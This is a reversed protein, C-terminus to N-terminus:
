LVISCRCADGLVNCRPAPRLICHFCWDFGAGSGRKVVHTEAFETGLVVGRRGNSVRKGQARQTHRLHALSGSPTSEDRAATGIEHNASVSSYRM